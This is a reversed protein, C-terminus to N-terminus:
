GAAPPHSAASSSAPDSAPSLARLVADAAAEGARVAGEFWGAEEAALDSTAFALRGRLQWLEPAFLPTQGLGHSVWTGASFPDRVWDHWDHSVFMAEPLFAAVARSMAVRSTDPVEDYLGFAIALVLGDGLDRETFIWRLGEAEGTALIGPSTNRLKLLVKIARGPHGDAALRSQATALPPEFRLTRLANVPVAVIAHLASINRGSSLRIGVHNGHDEITAAPDNLSVEAGSAALMRAALTGAGGEITHSLAGMMGDLSGDGHSAFSLMDLPNVADPSASGSICWWALTERKAEPPAALVALYDLLSRDAWPSATEHRGATNRMALSDRRIRDLAAAYDPAATAHLFRRHKVGVTPRLDMGFRAAHAQLRKHWPALWSGGVEILADDDGSCRSYARGGVRARAEIVTLRCGAEALRLAAAAGAFGAGIVVVDQM